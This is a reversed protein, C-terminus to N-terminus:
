RARRGGNRPSHSDPQADHRSLDVIAAACSLRESSPVVGAASQRSLARARVDEDSCFGTRRRKLCLLGLLRGEGDVVALRREDRDVLMQRSEEASASPAVTRGALRAWPLAPECDDAGILDTRVVTGRLVGVETLLVLHVHDDLFAARVAGVSTDCSMTKPRGVMVEAVTRDRLSEVELAPGGEPQMGHSM